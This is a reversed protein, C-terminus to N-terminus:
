CCYLLFILHMLFLSYLILFLKVRKEEFNSYKLIDSGISYSSDIAQHCSLKHPLINFNFVQDSPPRNITKDSRINLGGGFFSLPFRKHMHSQFVSKKNISRGLGPAWVIPCTGKQLRIQIGLESISLWRWIDTERTTDTFLFSNM